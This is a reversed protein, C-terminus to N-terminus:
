FALDMAAVAEKSWEFPIEEPEPPLLMASLQTIAITVDAADGVISVSVPDDRSGQPVKIRTNTSNQLGRITAGAPGIVTGIQDKPVDLTKLIWGEHTLSSFGQEMIQKIANICNKVDEPGGVVTVFNSDSDRDPTNVETNTSQMLQKITSGAPGIIQGILKSPVEIGEDVHGVHTIDSYGKSILQSLAKKAQAVAAKSPGTILAHTRVTGKKPLDVRCKTVESIDQLHKGKTGIVAPIHEQAIFLEDSFVVDETGVEEVVAEKAKKTTVIEIWGDDVPEIAAPAEAEPATAEKEAAAAAAAASKKKKKKKKKKTTTTEEPAAEAKQAAAAAAAKAAAEEDSKKAARKAAKRKQEKERKRVARALVEAEKAESAASVGKSQAKARAAIKQSKTMKEKKQKKPEEKPAEVKMLNSVVFALVLVAAGVFALLMTNM